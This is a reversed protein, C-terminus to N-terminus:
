QAIEYVVGVNAPGGSPARKPPGTSTEPLIAHWHAGAPIPVM